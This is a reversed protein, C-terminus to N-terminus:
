VRRGVYVVRGVIYLDDAPVVQDGVTKNDSRIEVMGNGVARLRKIMGAGQYSCAWIRDQMNLVRQSTDIVVEDDNILTPFMSDGDGSAVFLCAPEARSIRRLFDPDYLVLEVDPYDDISTGAGMAYSLDVRRIAIAGDGSSAGKLAPQDPVEAAVVQKRPPSRPASDGHLLWDTSVGLKSAFLSALKAFGNQGNEYARYTTAHIGVARAFDAKDAFGAQQRALALREHPTDPSEEMGEAHCLAASCIMNGFPAVFSLAENHAAEMIM